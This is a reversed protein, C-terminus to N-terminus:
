STQDRGLDSEYSTKGRQKEAGWRWGMWDEISIATTTAAQHETVDLVLLLRVMSPVVVM